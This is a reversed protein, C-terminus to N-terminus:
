GLRVPLEAPSIPRADHLALTYIESVAPGVAAIDHGALPGYPETFVTVDEHSAGPVELNAVQVPHAPDRADLVAVGGSPCFQPHSSDFFGWRGVYAFKKYVFVDGNFGRKSLNNQGVSIMNLSSGSKTGNSNSGSSDLFHQENPLLEDNSAAGAFASVALALAFGLVILTRRM